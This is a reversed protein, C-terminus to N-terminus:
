DCVTDTRYRIVTRTKTVEKYRTVDRCVQKTPINQEYCFCSNIHSMRSIAFTKSSQPYIYQSQTEELNQGQVDFGITVSFTGAETDLNTITCSYKAPQDQSLWNDDYDLCSGKELKYTLTKSECERDSYPVTEQYEELYDYPTQVDRCNKQVQTDAVNTDEANVTNTNKAITNGTLSGSGFLVIVFVIVVALAVIVMYLGTNSSKTPKNNDKKEVM